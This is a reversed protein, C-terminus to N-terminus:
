IAELEQFSKNIKSKWTLYDIKESYIPTFYIDGKTEAVDDDFVVIESKAFNLQVSNEQNSASIDFENLTIDIISKKQSAEVDANKISGTIEIDPLIMM